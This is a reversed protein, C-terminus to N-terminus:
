EYLGSFLIDSSKEIFRYLLEKMYNRVNTYEPSGALNNMEYPDNELDFLYYLSMHTDSKKIYCAKYRETVVARWPCDVWDPDYSRCGLFAGEIYVPSADKEKNNNHFWSMLSKGDTHVPPIQMLDLLTPVIDALSVPKNYVQGGEIKEPYRIIFPVRVCEEQPRRKYHMGHSLMLDGHDSTFVVITNEALGLEELKDMLRGLNRDLNEIMTYYNAYDRRAEDAFEEPVNARLKIDAPNHLLEDGPKIQELPFHPPGWSLDLHWCSNVNNEIFELALDTQGDPEYTGPSYYVPEESDLYYLGNLYKHGHEFGAWYNFGRHRERPVNMYKSSHSGGDLHWKGIHGTKYGAASTIEAICPVDSRMRLDNKWVGTNHPYLGTMLTSRAPCCVPDTTYMRTFRAGDQALRDMNPTKVDTNGSCSMAMEQMEDAFIFLLNPKM